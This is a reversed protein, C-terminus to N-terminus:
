HLAVTRRKRNKSIRQNEYTIKPCTRPCYIRSKLTALCIKSHIPTEQSSITTTNTNKKFVVPEWDQEEEYHPDWDKPM